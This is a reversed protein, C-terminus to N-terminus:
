EGDQDGFNLIKTERTKLNAIIVRSHEPVIGRREQYETQTVWCGCCIMTVNRYNAVKAKHVHGMIFFDPVKNIVLPDEDFVPLYLTSTHSPALHRKQLYFKMVQDIKDFGKNTRFSEVENAYYPASFGHYMLVNFGSFDASSHINVLSPNSTIIVNPLDWLAKAIDKYLPPQPEAIRLADHNGGCMIIKIDKRIKGLIEALRKYQETIDKIKLDKEHNPYVGAGEVLDGPIFLYKVKSAFEKDEKSGEECNLWRIFKILDEELFVNLGIHIDSTFAAYVEDKCKKLESNVIVDPFYVNNVFLIRDGKVGSIGIVEDLVIEKASQYLGNKNKNILIDVFGTPDELTFLLNKNKTQNKKTVIGIISVQEREGKNQIKNISIASQLETRNILIKKISDYRLRFYNVFDQVTIKKANEKYEKIITVNTLITNDKEIITIPEINQQLIEKLISGDLLTPKNNGFKINIRGLFDNADFDKPINVLFDKSVLFGSDLFYNIVEKDQMM